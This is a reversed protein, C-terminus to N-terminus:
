KLISGMKFYCSHACWLVNWKPTFVASCCFQCQPRQRLDPKGMSISRRDPWPTYYMCQWNQELAQLALFAALLWLGHIGGSLTLCSTQCKALVEFLLWQGPGQFILLTPSTARTLASGDGAPVSQWPLSGSWAELVAPCVSSYSCLHRHPALHSCFHRYHPTFTATPMSSSSEQLHSPLASLMWKWTSPGQHPLAEQPRM